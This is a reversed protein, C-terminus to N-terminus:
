EKINTIFIFRDLGSYDKEVSINIDKLYKNAIDVISTGQTSGIEFCVLYKDKTIKPINKIIM